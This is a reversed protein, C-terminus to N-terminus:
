SYRKQYKGHYIIGNKRSENSLHTKFELALIVDNNQTARHLEMQTDFRKSGPLQATAMM